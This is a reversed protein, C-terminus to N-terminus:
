NEDSLTHGAPTSGAAESNPNLSAPAAAPTPKTPPQPSKEKALTPNVYHTAYQQELYTHGTKSFRLPERRGKGWSVYATPSPKLRHENLAWARLTKLIFQFQSLNGPLVRELCPVQRSRWREHDERSLKGMALLVDVPSVYGKAALLGHAAATVKAAIEQRNM